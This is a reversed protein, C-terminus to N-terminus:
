LCGTRLHRDIAHNTATLGAKLADHAPDLAAFYYRIDVKKGRGDASSAMPVLTTLKGLEDLAEAFHDTRTM